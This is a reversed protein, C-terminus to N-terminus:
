LHSLSLSLAISSLSVYVSLCNISQNPNLATRLLQETMDRRGCECINRPKRVGTSWVVNKGILQSRKGCISYAWQHFVFSAQWLSKQWVDFIINASSPNSSVVEQNVARTVVSLAVPARRVDSTFMDSFHCFTVCVPKLICCIQLLQNSFM